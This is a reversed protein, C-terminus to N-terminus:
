PRLQFFSTLGEAAGLAALAERGAEDDTGGVIFIGGPKPGDVITLGLDALRTSVTGMDTEPTFAVLATPGAFAETAGSATQFQSTPAQQQGAYVIYGAQLAVIACLAAAGALAYRPSLMAWIREAWGKVLATAPADDIEAMLNDLVARSPVGLTDADARILELEESVRALHDIAGDNGSLWAEVALRETEDLTGNVYFPLLLEVDDEPLQEEIRESM